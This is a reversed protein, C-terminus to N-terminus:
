EAPRGLLLCRGRRVNYQEEPLSIVRSFLTWRLGEKFVAWRQARTETLTLLTQGYRSNLANM